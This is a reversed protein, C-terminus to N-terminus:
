FHLLFISKYLARNHCTWSQFMWTHIVCNKCHLCIMGAKMQYREFSPAVMPQYCGDLQLNSSV